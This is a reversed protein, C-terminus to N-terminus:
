EAFALVKLGSIVEELTRVTKELADTSVEQLGLRSAILLECLKNLTLELQPLHEIFTHTNEANIFGLSLVTDVSMPDPLHEAEKWLDRRLTPLSALRESAAKVAEGAATDARVVPVVPLYAPANFGLSEAIKEVAASTSAGLGALVFLASDVSHVGEAGMKEVPEGSLHVASPGMARLEAWHYAKKTVMNAAEESSLLSVMGTQQLPVFQADPPPSYKAQSGDAMQILFEGGPVGGLVTVPLTMAPGTDGSFAWAGFGAPTSSTPSTVDGVRTGVIDPQYAAQSGNFFLSSPVPLGTTPDILNPFVMGTIEKGELDMVKYTGPERIISAGSSEEGPAGSGEAMTVSGAMDTALAIKEGFRRVLEGRDIAESSPFWARRSASKVTYENAGDRVVQVVDARVRGFVGSAVKRSSDLDFSAIRRLADRSAANKVLLDSMRSAADVVHAALVDYRIAELISGTKMQPVTKKVSPGVDAPVSSNPINTAASKAPKKELVRRIEEHLDDSAIKGGPMINGDLGGLGGLGNGMQRSPPYLQSIMSVDGPSVGTVDFLQPRFMAQSMREKTLPLMKADSTVLTDLPLLMKDKVILPIRVRQVGILGEAEAKPPVETKSSVEVHGFGCGREVDVRDMHVNLAYESVYPIQKHVEVLIENPWTDANESLTVHAASTKEAYTRRSDLFLPKMQGMITADSRFARM